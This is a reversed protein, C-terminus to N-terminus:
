SSLCILTKALVGGGSFESNGEEEQAEQKLAVAVDETQETEVVQGM